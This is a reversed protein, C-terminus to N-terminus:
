AEQSVKGHKGKAKEALAILESIGEKVESIDAKSCKDINDIMSDLQTTLKKMEKKMTFM